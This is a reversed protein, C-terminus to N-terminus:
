NQKSRTLAFSLAILCMSVLVVVTSAAAITPTLNFDIDEFMKRGITKGNIDSIFFAVTAEDFSALFAFVFGAGISPAIMPLTIHFFARGRGAGCNLAALELAPDFRQLAAVVTIMVFPVSLVTHSVLFGSFTGTLQHPAFVLYLAVGLVIHPVIMPGITLVQFVGKFPLEGRVFALSAMTGVVTSTLATALAIKLSFWTSAMWDPDGFYAAYWRLSLGQPPFQLYDTQSFSMPVIILTPLILFLLIISVFFAAFLKWALNGMRWGKLSM